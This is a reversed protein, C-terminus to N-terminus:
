PGRVNKAFVRDEQPGKGKKRYGDSVERVNIQFVDFLAPRVAEDFIPVKVAEDFVDPRM